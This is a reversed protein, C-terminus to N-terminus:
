TYYRTKYINIDNSRWLPNASQDVQWRPPYHKSPGNQSVFGNKPSTSFTMKRFLAM